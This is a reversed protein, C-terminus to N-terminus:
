EVVVSEIIRDLQRRAAVFEGEPAALTFYYTQNGAVVIYERAHVVVPLSARRPANIPQVVYAFESVMARSGGVISEGEDLFHYGTLQQRQEVRRDLLTQLTPPANPDLERQEVSFSTKFSSPTVPDIVRLTVDQLSDVSQWSAPYSFRLPTLEDQFSATRLTVNRMLLFAGLLCLLVILAVGLDKPLLRLRYIRDDSTSQTM